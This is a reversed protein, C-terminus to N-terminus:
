MDQHDALWRQWDDHFGLIELVERCIDRPQVGLRTLVDTAASPRIECLALLLHETGAYHHDLWKAETLSKADLAALYAASPEDRSVQEGLCREVTDVDVNLNALVRGAVGSNERLMALLVDVSDVYARRSKVAAQKASEIIHRTRDTSKSVAAVSAAPAVPEPTELQIEDEEEVVVPSKAGAEQRYLVINVKELTVMGEGVMKDLTKMFEAIRDARDAVEVVIPLAESRHLVKVTHIQSRAGFGEIGRLATAGALGQEHAARVIAEYLPRGEWRDSESVYIRLLQGEAQTKM